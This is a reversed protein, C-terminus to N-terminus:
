ASKGAKQTPIHGPMSSDGNFVGFIPNWEVVTALCCLREVEGQWRGLESSGVLHDFLGAVEAKPVKRVHRPPQV